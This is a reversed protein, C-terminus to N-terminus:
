THQKFITNIVFIGNQICFDIMTDARENIIGLGFNGTVGATNQKGVKANLDDIVYM